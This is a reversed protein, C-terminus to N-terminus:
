VTVGPLPAGTAANTITGKIQGVAPELVVDLGSARGDSTLNVGLTQSTYGSLSFTLSYDGPTPLGSITFYGPAGATLTQTSAPKAMGGVTVTVGGLPVKGPGFVTGSVTGTGGVLSVQLGKITKGALLDVAVSRSAFGRKSFTLLYTAPTPLRPLSFRGVGGVTPTASMFTNGNASATVNVGGLPGNGGTVTGEIEGVGASLNVTNAVVEQGADVFVRQDAQLFGKATFELTYTAPSALNSLTYDGAGNVAVSPGVPANGLLLRVEVSPSPTEGTAVMGTVKAPKGTIEANINNVTTQAAIQVPKASAQSATGPYWITNFGPATFAVKYTGPFLGVIQYQGNPSTAASSLTGVKSGVLFAEVTILGVGGPEDPSVVTGTMVGGVGLPALDKPQFGAASANAASAAAAGSAAAAASANAGGTAGAAHAASSSGPAPHTAAAAASSPTVGTTSPSKPVAPTIPAFFSLPALKTLSQQALITNLAFTFIVAWLCVVAALMLATLVGRAVTPRQVYTIKAELPVPGGKADVPQATGAITIQRSRESGFIHRPGRVTLDAGASSAPEILAKEPLFSLRLAREPDSAELAVEIETNGLNKLTVSFDSSRHGTKSLPSVSLDAQTVPEVNVTLDCYAVEGASIRAQAEAQAEHRGAVFGKPLTVSVAITGSTGPFLPLEEPSTKVSAGTLGSISVSISDIVDSTNSLELEFSFSQGPSATIERPSLQARM